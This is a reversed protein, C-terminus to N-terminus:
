KGLHYAPSTTVKIASLDNDSYWHGVIFTPLPTGTVNGNMGEHSLRRNNCVLLQSLIGMGSM